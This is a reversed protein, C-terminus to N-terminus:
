FALVPRVIYRTSTIHKYDAYYKVSNGSMYWRQARNEIGRESSSWFYSQYTIFSSKDEDAIKEMWTNLTTLIDDKSSWGSDGVSSGSQEDPDALASVKGLNQVIDWWQGSAPLYWGTTNAVPCTTNYEDAAAFAPYNDFSGHQTKIYNCNYLGSIDNYNDAKTECKKLGEQQHPGWNEEDSAVKVSMVLGHPEIGSNRLKELEATGIRQKNNQFVIGVPKDGGDLTGVEQPVLYWDTNEVNQCFMDGIRVLGLKHYDGTREPTLGGDVKCFRYTGASLNKTQIEVSFNHRLMNAMDDYYGTVTFDKVDPHVIRRYRYDIFCFQPDDFTLDLGASTYFDCETKNSNYSTVHFLPGEVVVLAMCHRMNFGLPVIHNEVTGVTGKGVMLDSATYDAYEAQDAKPQWDEILPAFFDEASVTSSANVKDTMDNEQYPYYLFYSMEESHWLSTGDPLSWVIEDTGNETATVKVNELKVVGDADVAYLGALDGNTFETAYGNEVTRTQPTDASVFGGDSVTISYNMSGSPYTADDLMDENSCSAAFLLAALLTGALHLRGM